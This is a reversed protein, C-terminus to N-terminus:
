HKKVNQNNSKWKSKIETSQRQISYHVANLLNKWEIGTPESCNELSGAVM